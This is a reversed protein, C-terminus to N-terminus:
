NKTRVNNTSEPPAIREVTVEDPAVKMVVVNPPTHVLVKRRFSKADTADLLNVCVDVDSMKLNDLVREDARITVEVQNPTFAFGRVDEPPKRATVPLSRSLTASSHTEPLKFSNEMNSNITLWILLAVVMSALKWGFNHLIYDRPAM